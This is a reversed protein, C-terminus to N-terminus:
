RQFKGYDQSKPLASIITMIINGNVTSSNSIKLLLQDPVWVYTNENSGAYEQKLLSLITVGSTNTIIVVLIWTVHKSQAVFCQALCHIYMM